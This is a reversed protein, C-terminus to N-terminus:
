YALMCAVPQWEEPALSIFNSGHSQNRTIGYASNQITALIAKLPSSQWTCAIRRLCRVINNKALLLEALCSRCSEPQTLTITIYHILSLKRRTLYVASDQSILPSSIVSGVQGSTGTVLPTTRDGTTVSMSQEQQQCSELFCPTWCSKKGGCFLVALGLIM